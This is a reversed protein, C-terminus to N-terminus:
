NRVEFMGKLNTMLSNATRSIVKNSKRLVFSQGFMDTIEIVEKYAKVSKPPNMLITACDELGCATIVSRLKEQLLRPALISLQFIARDKKLHSFAQLAIQYRRETFSDGMLLFKQSSKASASGNKPIFLVDGMIENMASM